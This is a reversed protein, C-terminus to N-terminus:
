FPQYFIEDVKKPSIRVEFGQKQKSYPTGIIYEKDGIKEIRKVIFQSDFFITRQDGFRDIDFDFDDSDPDIEEGTEYYHKKAMRIREDRIIDKIYQPTGKGQTPVEGLVSIEKIKGARQLELLIQLKPIVESNKINEEPSGFSGSNTQKYVPIVSYSSQPVTRVEMIPKKFFNEFLQLHKM